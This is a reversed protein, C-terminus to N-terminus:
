EATLRYGIGRVTEVCDAATGLRVRLRKIHADVTRAEIGQKGWVREMLRERTLVRGPHARLAVLIDFQVVTLLIEQGQVWTRRTEPDLRLWNRDSPPTRAVPTASRRLMARIRLVLERPSFPKAVYDDVGLEFAMVRDVEENRASLIVFPIATLDVDERLQRCLEAGSGDPLDLECLVLDPQEQRTLLLAEALSEAHIVDHGVARLDYVVLQRTSSEADVVLIRAM